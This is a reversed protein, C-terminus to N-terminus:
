AMAFYERDASEIFSDSRSIETLAGLLEEIGKVKLIAMARDRIQRM